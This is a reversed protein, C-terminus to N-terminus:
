IGNIDVFCTKLVLTGERLFWAQQAWTKLKTMIVGYLGLASHHSIVRASILKNKFLFLVVQM